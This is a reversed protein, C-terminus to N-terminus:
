LLNTVVRFMRLPLLIGQPLIKRSKSKFIQFCCAFVGFIQKIDYSKNQLHASSSSINSSRGVSFPSCSMAIASMRFHTKRTKWLESCVPPFLSHLIKFQTVFVLFHPSRPSIGNLVKQKWLCRLIGFVHSLVRLVRLSQWGVARVHYSWNIIYGERGLERNKQERHDRLCFKYTHM